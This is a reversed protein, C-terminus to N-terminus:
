PQFFGGDTSCGQIIGILGEFSYASSSRRGNSHPNGGLLSLHPYVADHHGPEIAKLGPELSELDSVLLLVNLSQDSEKLILIQRNRRVFM